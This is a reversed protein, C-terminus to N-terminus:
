ETYTGTCKHVAAMISDAVVPVTPEDADVPKWIDAGISFIAEYQTEM